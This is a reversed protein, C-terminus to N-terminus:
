SLEIKDLTISQIAAVKAAWENAISSWFGIANYAFIWNTKSEGTTLRITYHYKPM